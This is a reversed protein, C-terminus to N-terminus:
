GTPSRGQAVAERGGTRVIARVYEHFSRSVGDMDRGFYTRFVGDGVRRTLAEQAPVRGLEAVLVKRLNGSAADTLLECLQTRYRADEAEDLFHALAWVHAYFDLLGEGGSGLEDQPRMGLLRVLSIERGANVADRLRDFREMNAWAMFEPEDHGGLVWRHGEMYTAMGEELWIPLPDRFVRQTYQHWGEHAAIALTDHLGLDFYVGIGRSAYGGREINSLTGAAVGMLRKTLLDWQSRNDMLYVDLKMAPAPLPTIATRYHALAYEVFESMRARMQLDRETTYIRYHATRIVVGDHGAFEWPDTSLVIPTARVDAGPSRGLAGMAVSDTAAPTSAAARSANARTDTKTARSGGAGSSCAGLGVVGALAVSGGALWLVGLRERRTM